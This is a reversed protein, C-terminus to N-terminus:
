PDTEQLREGLGYQEDIPLTAATMAHAGSPKPAAPDPKPEIAPVIVTFDRRIDAKPRDRARGLRRYTRGHRSEGFLSWGNCCLLIERHALPRVSRGVAGYPV